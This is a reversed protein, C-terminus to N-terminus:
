TPVGERMLIATPEAGRRAIERVADVIEEPDHGRKELERVASTLIPFHQPSWARHLRMWAEHARTTLPYHPSEDYRMEEGAPIAHERTAPEMSHEQPTRTARTRSPLPAPAVVGTARTRSPLPRVRSPELVALYRTSANASGRERTIWGQKELENAARIVTARDRGMACALTAISPWAVGDDSMYAALTLALHRVTPGTPGAAGEKGVIADLWQFRVPTEDSM